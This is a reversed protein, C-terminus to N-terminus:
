IKFKEKIIKATEEASVNTNNIKIFNKEKIENPMSNLRYKNVSKLLDNESWEFNRKSAKNLLRNETKNRKLREELDAELEIIYIESNYKKFIDIYGYIRDWEEKKNFDWTTTFILGYQDSKAFEEFIQLRFSENM